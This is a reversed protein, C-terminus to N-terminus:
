LLALDALAADLLTLVGSVDDNSTSSKNGRVKSHKDIEFTGGEENYIGGGIGENPDAIAQNANVNSHTLSLSSGADNFIGGGQADGGALASARNGVISSKDVITTAGDWSAIAGGSADFTMGGFELGDSHVSNGVFQSGVIHATGSAQHSIAGGRARVGASATNGFFRSGEVSYEGNIGLAFQIAGGSATVGATVHNAVFMSDTVTTGTGPFIAFAHQVAGGDALHVSTVSNERFYSKDITTTSAFGSVIAGGSNLSREPTTASGIVENDVFSSQTIIATAFSGNGIAGGNSSCGGTEEVLDCFRDFGGSEEPINTRAQNGTFTSLDVTVTGQNQIAGGFSHRNGTAQNGTFTGHNVHLVGGDVYIGGGQGTGQESENGNAHNNAVAVHDLSLTSGGNVFVGGGRATDAATVFGDAITLHGIDVTSDVLSFVRSQGSGSVTLLNEGPGNIALDDSIELESGLSITGHVGPAFAIVDAGVEMNADAIADRLSGEGSDNLNTVTFLTTLMARNELPEFRPSFPSRRASSRRRHRRRVNRKRDHSDSNQNQFPKTFLM